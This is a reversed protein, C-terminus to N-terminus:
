IKTVAYNAEILTVGPQEIEPPDGAAPQIDELIVQTVETVDYTRDDSDVMGTRITSSVFSTVSIEMRSTM